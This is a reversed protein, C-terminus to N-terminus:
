KKRTFDLFVFDNTHKLENVHTESFILEWEEENFSPFKTDGDHWGLVKTLMLKDAIKLGEKYIEVGGGFFVKESKLDNAISLAEEVSRAIKVNEFDVTSLTSSVVISTRGTLPKKNLTIISRYTERGMIISHGSTEQKFRNFDLPLRWPIDNNIGIVNKLNMATILIKEM